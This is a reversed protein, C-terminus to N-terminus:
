RRGRVRVPPLPQVLRKNRTLDRMHRALRQDIARLAQPHGSHHAKAALHAPWDSGKMALEYLFIIYPRGGSYGGSIPDIFSADCRDCYFEVREIRNIWPTLHAVIPDPAWCETCRAVEVMQRRLDPNGLEPDGLEEPEFESARTVVMRLTPKAAPPRVLVYGDPQHPSDQECHPHRHGLGGHRHMQGCWDCWIMWGKEGEPREVAQFEPPRRVLLDTLAQNLEPSPRVRVGTVLRRLGSATTVDLIVRADGPHAVLLEVLEPVVSAPLGRASFAVRFPRAM